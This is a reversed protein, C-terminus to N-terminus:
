DLRELRDLEKEYESLTLRGDVFKQQLEELQSKRRPRPRASEREQPDKGLRHAMHQVLRDRDARSQMRGKVRSELDSLRRDYENGGRGLEGADDRRRGRGWGCMRGVGFFIVFFLVLFGFGFEM